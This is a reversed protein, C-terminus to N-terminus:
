FNVRWYGGKEPGIREISQSQKLKDLDRLITRKSVGLEQAIFRISIYPDAKILELLELLRNDTVNDTVHIQTHSSNKMFTVKLTTFETTFEPKPLGQDVCFNHIDITGRGWNEIFGAKYFVSAIVPNTPLSPHPQLLDEVTLGAPLTAGNTMVLKENYVKIQLNSTNSYDRHVLANIVAERLAKFPYELIERRHAGEFHIPAKLYKLRLTDLIKDVQDILNGEISDSSQIDTESLFRGIKSHSQIFYRQPYKAFLLVAARKLYKGDYLNLKKFLLKLDHEQNINPVRDLALAKFKEVSELNVDDLSFNEVAVDDWTKGYKQLLFRSLEGGNLEMTVSGSRKFFKGNFSVPAYMASIKIELISKEDVSHVKLEAIIGLRNHIKNPLTELVKKLGDFGIVTGNDSVGVYLTGGDSNAFACLTKLYEDKWLLKLESTQSEIFKM